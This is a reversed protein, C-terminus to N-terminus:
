LRCIASASPSPRPPSAGSADSAKVTFSYSSRTELDPTANITVVGDLGHHLGRRGHGHARLDGRRRRDAAVTTYVVTKPAEGENM